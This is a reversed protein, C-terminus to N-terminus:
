HMYQRDQPDYMPATAAQGTTFLVLINPQLRKAQEAVDVSNMDHPLMVDIIVLDFPEEGNLYTIAERGDQATVIRFGLDRLRRAFETRFEESDGVFLIREVEASPEFNLVM